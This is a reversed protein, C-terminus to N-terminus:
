EEMKIRIEESSVDGVGLRTLCWLVNDSNRGRSVIGSLIHTPTLMSTTGSSSRENRKKQYQSSFVEGNKKDRTVVELGREVLLRIFLRAMVALLAFPALNREIETKEHGAIENCTMDLPAFHKLGLANVMRSISATLIPDGVAVLAKAPYLGYKAALSHVNMQKSHGSIVRQIDVVPFNMTQLEVPVIRCRNVSKPRSLGITCESPSKRIDMEQRSKEEKCASDRLHATADLGCIRCWRDLAKDKLQLLHNGNLKTERQENQDELVMPFHGNESLWSYIDGVRLPIVDKGPTMQEIIRCYADQIARARGWEIAKRRGTVLTKFYAPSSVLKYPLITALSSRSRDDTTSLSLPLYMSPFPTSLPRRQPEVKVPKELTHRLDSLRNWLSKAGIPTYGSQIPKLMTGKDLEIDVIQDEGQVVAHTRLPDLEVWHELVVKQDMSNGSGTFYLEIRALFPQDSTGVVVFPPESTIPLTSMGPILPIVALSDLTSTIHYTYSPSDVSIMWKHTHNENQETRQEPPIWLSRDTIIIRTGFYFRSQNSPLERSGNTLIAPTSSFKPIPQSQPHSAFMEAQLNTDSIRAGIGFLRMDSDLDLTVSNRPTFTMKWNGNSKQDIQADPHILGGIDVENDENWVRIERRIAQKGLYPALTASDEHLGLTQTLHPAMPPTQSNSTTMVSEGQTEEQFNHAGVAMQFITRLGPLVGTPGLGVEVGGEVDTDNGPVACARICEDHTGWELNHALRAHNLLGQLSSFSIRLCEPCQLRYLNTPGHTSIGLVSSRIYLFSKTKVFPLNTRRPLRINHHHSPPGRPEQALICESSSETISLTALADNRPFDQSGKREAKQLTEQLILAWAIRSEVTEALRQKLAIEVDVQANIESLFAETLPPGFSQVTPPM